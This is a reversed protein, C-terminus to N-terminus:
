IHTTVRVPVATLVSTGSLPDLATVGVLRNVNVGPRKGAVSLRVDTANHGWGHPLSVVGHRVADTVHARVEVSGDVSTVTVLEGDDIDRAAADTPHVHLTCREAGRTLVGLNHMWSNNSRLDRRNVLWLEDSSRRDVSAALRDLDALLEPAALEICGSRTRLADPLRPLLPGLDVGHPAAMLADLSLGEPQAGFGDGYPGTRLRIDLLREPGRRGGVSVEALLDEASRGAVPSTVDAVAHHVM